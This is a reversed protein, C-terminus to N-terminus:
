HTSIPGKHFAGAISGQQLESQIKQKDVEPHENTSKLNKSEKPIRSGTDRIPFGSEFGYELEEAAQTNPYKQLEKKLDTLNVPSRSLCFISDTETVVKSTHDMHQLDEASVEVPEPQFAVFCCVKHSVFM